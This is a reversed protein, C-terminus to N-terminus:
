QLFEICKQQLSISTSRKRYICIDLISHIRNKVEQMLNLYMVIEIKGSEM